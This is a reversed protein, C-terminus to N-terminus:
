TPSGPAPADCVLRQLRRRWEVSLRDARVNVTTSPDLPLEGALQELMARDEAGVARDFALQDDDDVGDAANRWVVFTFLSTVADVPTSCLLLIRDSGADPGSDFHTTSRVTFPLAFGTTMTQHVRAGAANDVDVAYRYGTFDDDLAEVSFPEVHPEVAVGLTVPHVWPFHAVDCFNDVMRTVSTAWVETGANLRRFSPDADEPISPPEGRPAGPSLWVLGYAVRVPLLDLAASSPIAAGPGSSPVALCTGDRGFAWGHYACVLRDGEVTGISLPAERHPCRDRAALVAGADDRWVVFREGLLRVPWPGRRLEADDAVVYWEDRLRTSACIVSAADGREAM